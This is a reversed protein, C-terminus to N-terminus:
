SVNCSVSVGDGDVFTVTHLAGEDWTATANSLTIQAVAGPSLAIASIEDGSSNYMNTPVSDVYAVMVSANIAGANRVYATISTNSNICAADITLNETATGVAQQQNNNGPKFYVGIIIAAVSVAIVIISILVTNRKNHEPGTTKM